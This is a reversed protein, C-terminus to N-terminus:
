FGLFWMVAIATLAYTMFKPPGKKNRKKGCVHKSLKTYAYTRHRANYEAHSEKKNYIEGNSAKYQSM